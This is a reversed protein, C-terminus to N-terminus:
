AYLCSTIVFPTAIAATTPASNRRTILYQRKNLCSKNVKSQKEIQCSCM